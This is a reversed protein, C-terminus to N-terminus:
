RLRQPVALAATYGAAGQKSVSEALPGTRGPSLDVGAYGRTGTEAQELVTVPVAEALWWAQTLDVAPVLLPQATAM